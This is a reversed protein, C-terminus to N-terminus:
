VKPSSWNLKIFVKGGFDAIATAIQQDLEFFQPVQFSKFDTLDIYRAPAPLFPLFHTIVSQFPHHKDRLKMGHLMIKKMAAVQTTQIRNRM